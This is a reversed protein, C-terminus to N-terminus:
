CRGCIKNDREDSDFERRRLYAGYAQGFTLKSDDEPLFMTEGSPLAIDNASNLLEEYPITAKSVKPPQERLLLEQGATPHSRM